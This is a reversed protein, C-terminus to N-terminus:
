EKPTHLSVLAADISELCELLADTDDLRKTQGARMSDSLAEMTIERARMLLASAEVIPYASNPNIPNCEEAPLVFSYPEVLPENSPKEEAAVIAKNAMWIRHRKGKQWEDIIVLASDRQTEDPPEQGRVLELYDMAIDFAEQITAEPPPFSWHIAM